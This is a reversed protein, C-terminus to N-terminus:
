NIMRSYSGPRNRTSAQRMRAQIALPSLPAGLLYGQGSYCGLRILIHRQEQTEIGEAVIRMGLEQGLDIASKALIRARTTAALDKTLSRDLKLQDAHIHQLASLSSYGAGFDDISLHVGASQLERLQYSVRHPDSFAVSETIELTISKPDLAYAHISRMVKKVFGPQELEIPSINVSVRQPGLGTTRWAALQRCAQDLVWSGLRHICGNREFADIFDGPMLLGHEPHRWRILAECGEISTDQLSCQPQFHLLFQGSDLADIMEHQLVFDKRATQEMAPTYVQLESGDCKSAALRARRILTDVQTGHMPCFVIGAKVTPSLLNGNIELSETAAELLPAALCSIAPHPDIVVLDGNELCGALIDDPLMSQLKQAQAELFQDASESGYLLALTRYEQLDLLMLSFPMTSRLGKDVIECLVQRLSDGSLLGGKLELATFLNKDAM